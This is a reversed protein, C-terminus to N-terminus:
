DSALVCSLKQEVITRFEQESLATNGNKLLYVFCDQCINFASRYDNLEGAIEWCPRGPNKRAPCNETGKCKMIEWCQWDSNLSM